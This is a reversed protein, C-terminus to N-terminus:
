PAKTIGWARVRDLGYITQRVAQTFGKGMGTCDGDFAGAMMDKWFALYKPEGTQEYAFAIIEANLLCTMGRHGVDRYNPANTIYRFGKGPIWSENMLWDAGRVLMDCVEPRENPEQELYRLLGHSLIGVAFAKGGLVPINDTEGIPPIHLWGGSEPDQRELCREVMLRAANLYYPNGSFNYAHSANILPWGGSREITFDFTPTLYRAQNMCVREAAQRLWPDGTLAAYLWTGPEFVHGQPDMAGTRMRGFSEQYKRWDDDGPLVRLEEVSLTTGVHNFCHEWVLCRQQETFAGYLTDVTSYHRAMQLGKDFCARNGDRMWQMGMAWPLDYENNGFNCIREGYWDGYHMWGYSRRTDRDQLHRAFGGDFYAEYDDWVGETRPYLSRGFICTSCLYEPPATPLLPMQYWAARNLAQSNDSPTGYHVYVEHQTLQGARFLYKGERCWAYLKYFWPESEKDQYADGPLAPLLRVHIGDPKIAYGSPYTQWFDRTAVTVERHEDNAVAVGMARQGDAVGDATRMQFHNDKDQLIWLGDADPVPVASAGDFGGRVGGTGDMPVRLALTTIPQYNPVRQDNCVSVNVVMDRQGKWLTVRVLYWWMAEGERTVLPGSWKLRAFIPGNEELVFSDPEPSGCTLLMGDGSELKLNAGLPSAQIREDETVCGDSNADFGVRDFLAPIDKKVDFALAGTSVQWVSETESLTATVTDQSDVDPWSPAAKLAYQVPADGTTTDAFFSVTVWKVSGNPWRSFCDTQFPVLADDPGFLRLDTEQALMGKAFPIGITAPWHTRAAETPEPVTLLITQPQTPPPVVPVATFRIPKSTLTVGEHEAVIEAQYTKSPDLGQIRVRHNRGEYADQCTAQDYESIGYRVKGTQVARSTTWCLDVQGPVPRWVEINEFSPPPPVIPKESFYLTQVRYYGVPQGSTFTLCDGVSVNLSEKFSFLGMEKGDGVICGIEKGNLTATLEETGDVDDNMAVALYFSGARNFVYSFRHGTKDGGKLGYGEIEFGVRDTTKSAPVVFGNGENEIWHNLGRWQSYREVYRAGAPVPVFQVYDYYGPGPNHAPYAYRDDVWFEFRGDQIEHTGMYFPSGAHKRWHEGDLSYALPRAGPNSVYVRYTGPELDKAVSHLPPAGDEPCERDAAVPPSALVAGGSRKSEIDEESTWLMWRDDTRNNLQWATDPSSIAESEYVIHPVVLGQAAVVGLLGVMIMTGILRM